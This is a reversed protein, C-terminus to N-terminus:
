DRRGFSARLRAVVPDLAARATARLMDSEGIVGAMAPGFTYYTQVALEGIVSKSLTSDRFSRLMSVDNALLSGYAATAVFCADVTGVEREATVFQTVTIPSSKYCDDYARVAITYETEPLLGTVEIHALRGPQVPTVSALVPIAQDFNEETIVGNAMARIEYKTVTGVEGDDGAEVFDFTASTPKSDRMTLESPAGPPGFDPTKVATVRLRYMDAGDSVLQLRLAGSGPTDTTITADPPNLDGNEGNVHGYGVYTQTSKVDLTESIKFPVKYVVSPQGRYPLGCAKYSVNPGPYLTDNYSSNFDFAKSVEAWVVYDGVPTEPPVAWNVETPTGGLPTARTISDFTNLESYRLVDDSDEGQLTLDQRPPYLSTRTPHLAGKDTHVTTACTGTDWMVKDAMGPWCQQNNDKSIPRCYPPTAEVSSINVSHSLNDEFGDQFVVEPWTRGHRHAWVPFTNVRRGYPWMDDVNAAPNPIPGSNFDMRGPRNGLGYFGTKATIYLTDVFQGSATELWVVIQLSDTPTLEAKVNYCDDAATAPRIGLLQFALPAALLATRAVSSM